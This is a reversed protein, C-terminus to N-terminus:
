LLKSSRLSSLLQAPVVETWVDSGCWCSPVKGLVNTEAHDLGILGTM